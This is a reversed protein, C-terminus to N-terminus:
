AFCYRSELISTLDLTGKEPIQELEGKAKDSLHVYVDDRFHQLVDQNSYMEVFAERVVAYLVKVDAATTGFSDHIMAFNKLGAEKARVVTMMLHAADCSHVYNPAIGSSQARRDLKPTAEHMTLVIKGNIATLVRHTKMEPYAQMVPFGVATRWRVPLDEAAALAAAGQLWKMAEGAKVLVKNVAQWILKAMYGAAQFGDNDFPFSNGSLKAPILIDEMLQEKFGYEKSGYALTMVSRKTTKRTIGFDLWQAALVKTGQKVWARDDVHKLEDETGDKADVVIQEIVKDAVMRYVDAPLDQPILNVAAGGIEDRLMASFHQIGSCSGDMAIPLKSVFKAGHTVYGAWEFCFALFQWPKDVKHEGIKGCWGRNDYPNEAIALIEEQHEMIFAVRDEITVKDYGVLNAGHFALWVWGNEGLPKGNAFRLLGKQYDAGQPNLHPVAYIRGRFDLQYPMYIKRYENYRKAIDLASSFGLRKSISQLNHMHIRSAESRHAKRAEENTEIDVPKVPYPLGEKAPIGAIATGSTWLTQLVELVQSNIQWATRQLANVADYVMPMDTHELEELHAKNNTKVLRLPKIYTSIYGGDKPTTWDKPTVVMPEYVPRLYSTAENKNEIWELTTPLAKVFKLSKSGEPNATVIEVLGISNICIELLKIGVHLREIRPWAEWTDVMEARRVAYVHKYHYSSRKAAGEVISAFKRKETARIESFRLEDEIATGINVAVGQLTRMFSVGSIINKLALFAVVKTDMGQLRKYGVSNRSGAAGVAAEDLWKQIAEAYAKVRGKIIAQGHTTGDESKRQKAKNVNRTFNEAGRLTMEEELRLQISMLDETEQNHTTTTM